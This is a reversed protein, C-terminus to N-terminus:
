IMAIAIENNIDESARVACSALVFVSASLMSIFLTINRIFYGLMSTEFSKRM